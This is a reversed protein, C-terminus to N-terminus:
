AANANKEMIFFSVDDQPFEPDNHYIFGYDVLRLGHYQRMMAGAFDAKWLLDNQGRYEIQTHKPAYYEALVIWRRSAAYIKAYANPLHAPPIHILVGRTFVMDCQEAQVWGQITTEIAKHGKSRMIDCNSRNPEVGTMEAEPCLHKLVDLNLGVNAGIELVTKPTTHMKSLIRRWMAEYSRLLQIENQRERYNDGPQGAWFQDTQNSMDKSEKDM